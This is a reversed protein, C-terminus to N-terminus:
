HELYFAGPIVTAAERDFTAVRDAGARRAIAVILCDSFESRGQRYVSLADDLAARDDFRIEPAEVIRDLIELTDALSKKLRRRLVRVFEALVLVSVLLDGPGSRAVLARAARCQGADDEVFVRILVNTDLGIM